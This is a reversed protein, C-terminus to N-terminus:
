VYRARIIAEEALLDDICSSEATDFYTIDGVYANINITTDTGMLFAQSTAPSGIADGTFTKEIGNIWCKTNAAVMNNATPKAYFAITKWITDNTWSISGTNLMQSIIQMGSSFFQAYINAQTGRTWFPTTTGVTAKRKWAFVMALSGDTIFGAPKVYHASASSPFSLTAFDTHGGGGAANHTVTGTPAIDAGNVADAVSTSSSSSVLYRHIVSAFDSAGGGGATALLASAVGQALSATIPRSIM